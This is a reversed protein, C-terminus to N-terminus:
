RESSLDLQLSGGATLYGEDCNAQQLRRAREEAGLMSLPLAVVCARYDGPALNPVAIKGESKFPKGHGSAWTFLNGLALPLGNQRLDLTFEEGRAEDVRPVAVVLDGGEDPVALQVESTSYPFEIVTLPYGPPSLTAILRDAGAWVQAALRGAEDARLRIAAGAGGEPELTVFAGAVPGRRGVIQARLERRPVLVLEIPNPESGERLHFLLTESTALKGQTSKQATLLVNGEPLARLEFTGDETTEAQLLSSTSQADVMARSVPRGHTDVVRGRISTDPIKINARIRGKKDAPFPQRVSTVFTGDAALVDVQWIGARPLVGSFAGDDDAEMTVSVAGFRGGFVVKSPFPDGASTVSGDVWFTPIEIAVKAEEASRVFRPFEVYLPNESTGVALKFVGPSQGDIRCTGTTTAPGEYVREGEVLASFDSGREVEVWWPRGLWDLPPSIAIELRLPEHLVIPENLLTEAGAWVEIPYAKATASGPQSVEVAYTGPELGVLQFFGNATAVVETMTRKLRERILADGGSGAPLYPAAKAVCSGAKIEGSDVKIWGAISAGAKFSLAGANFPTTSDITLGWRYHPAAGEVRLVVDLVMAPVACDFRADAQVPCRVVERNLTPKKPAFPPTSLELMLERLPSPAKGERRATGHIRGGPWASLKLRQPNGACATTFTRTPSWYGPAIFTVHGSLGNRLPLQGRGGHVETRAGDAGRGIVNFEVIGDLAKADASEVEIELSCTTSNASTPPPTIEGGAPQASLPLLLFAAWPITM